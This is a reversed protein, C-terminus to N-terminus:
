RSGSRRSRAASRSPSPSAVSGRSELVPLGPPAGGEIIAELAALDVHESILAFRATSTLARPGRRLARHGGVGAPRPAGGGLRASGRRVEDGEVLGHWSTGLVAGVAGGEGETSADDIMAEGGHRSPEGHRIEYGTAPVGGALAITGAM